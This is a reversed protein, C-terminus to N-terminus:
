KPCGTVQEAAECVDNKMKQNMGLPLTVTCVGETNSLKERLVSTALQPVNM